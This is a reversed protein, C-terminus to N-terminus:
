EGPDSWERGVTAVVLQLPADEMFRIPGFRRWPSPHFRIAFGSMKEDPYGFFTSLAVGQVSTGQKVVHALRELQPPWKQIKNSDAGKVFCKLEFVIVGAKGTM